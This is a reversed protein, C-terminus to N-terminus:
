SGPAPIKSLPTSSTFFSSDVEYLIVDPEIDVLIDYLTDANFNEVPQHVTGLLVVETPPSQCSSFKLLVPTRGKPLTLEANGSSDTSIGTLYNGKLDTLLVNIDELHMGLSSTVAITYYNRSTDAIPLEKSEIASEPEVVEETFNLVLKRGKILYDGYGYRSNDINDSFFIYEFRDATKFIYEKDVFSVVSPDHYDTYTAPFPIRNSCSFLSVFFAIVLVPRM